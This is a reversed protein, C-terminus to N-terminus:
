VAELGAQLEAEGGAGERSEGAAPVDPSSLSPPSSLTKVPDLHKAEPHQTDPQTTCRPEKNASHRSYTACHCHSQHRCDLIDYEQM